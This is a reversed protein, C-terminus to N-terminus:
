FKWFSVKYKTTLVNFGAYINCKYYCCRVDNWTFRTFRSRGDLSKSEKQFVPKRSFFIISFLIIGDMFEISNPTIKYNQQLLVKVGSLKVTGPNSGVAAEARRNGKHKNYYTKHLKQKKLKQYIKPFKHKHLKQKSLSVCINKGWGKLFFLFIYRKIDLKLNLVHWLINIKVKLFFSSLFHSFLLLKFVMEMEVM